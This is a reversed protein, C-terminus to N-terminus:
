PSPKGTGWFAVEIALLFFLFSPREGADDARTGADIHTVTIKYLMCHFAFQTVIYDRGQRNSGNMSFITSQLEDPNARSM